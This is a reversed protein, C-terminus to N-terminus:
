SSCGSAEPFYSFFGRCLFVKPAMSPSVGTVFPLPLIVWVKVTLGRACRKVVYQQSFTHSDLYRHTLTHKNPWSHTYFWWLYCLSVQPFFGYQSKPMAIWLCVLLTGLIVIRFFFYTNWVEQTDFHLLFTRTNNISYLWRFALCSKTEAQRLTSSSIASWSVSLLYPSRFYILCWERQFGGPLLCDLSKCDRSLAKWLSITITHFSLRAKSIKKRGGEAPSLPPAPDWRQTPSIYFPTKPQESTQRQQRTGWTHFQSLM